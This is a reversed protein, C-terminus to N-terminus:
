EDGDGDDDDDDDDRGTLGAVAIGHREVLRRLQTRHLGLARATAAVNGANARLADEIRQRWEAADRSMRKRPADPAAADRADPPQGPGPRAERMAGGFVTGATAAADSALATRVAEALSLEHVEQAAAPRSGAGLALAVGGLIAAARGPSRDM